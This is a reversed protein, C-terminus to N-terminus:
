WPWFRARGPKGDEESVQSRFFNKDNDQANTAAKGHRIDQVREGLPPLGQMLNKALFEDDRAQQFCLVVRLLSCNDVSGDVLESLHPPHLASYM